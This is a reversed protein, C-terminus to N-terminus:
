EMDEFLKPSREIVVGEIFKHEQAMEGDVIPYLMSYSVRWKQDPEVFLSVTKPNIRMVKGRVNKNYKSRFGVIDGIKIENRNMGKPKTPHTIDTAVDEINVMYFPINWKKMDHMNKVLVRTRKIELVEAQVLRNQTDEFYTIIDGENIMRKIQEVRNSDDLEKNIAVSLRYLDFLSADELETMIRSYDM